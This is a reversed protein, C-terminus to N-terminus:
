PGGPAPVARATPRRLTVIAYGFLAVGLVHITFWLWRIGGHDFRALHLLSVGLTLVLLALSGGAFPRLAEARRERASLVAGVAFAIFFAAYVRALLRTLTWPWGELVADPALLLALGCAGFVVAEAAFLASLRHRGPEAPRVLGLALIAVTALVPDVVYTTMWLWPVGDVTFRPWYVFTMVLVLVTIVDFAYLAIRADVARRVLAALLITVGGGLYLAAIFRANLPTLGKLPVVIHAPAILGYGIAFDQVVNILLFVRLWVPMPALDSGRGPTGGEGM